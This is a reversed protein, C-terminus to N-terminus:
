RLGEEAAAVKGITVVGTLGRLSLEITRGYENRLVLRATSTTGDPYFLIPATAGAEFADATSVITSARTDPATESGVFIVGEPLTEERTQLEAVQLSGTSTDSWISDGLTDPQRRAEICFRDEEAIYRFLYVDGSDLAKVRTAVWKARVLGAADRLRQSALPKQMLPLTLSALIVLISLTLMLELLTFGQRRNSTSQRCRGIV